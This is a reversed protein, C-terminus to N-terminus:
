NNNGSLLIEQAIPMCKQLAYEQDCEFLVIDSMDLCFLIYEM